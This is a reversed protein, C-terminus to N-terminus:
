VGAIHANGTPTRRSLQQAFVFGPAYCGVDGLQRLQQLLNFLVNAVGCAPIGIRWVIGGTNM